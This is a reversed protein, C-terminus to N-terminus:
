RHAFSACEILALKLSAIVRVSFQYSIFGPM